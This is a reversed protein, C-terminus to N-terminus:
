EQADPPLESMMLIVGSPADEPGLSLITVRCEITKGRRNTAELM